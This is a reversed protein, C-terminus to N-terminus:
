ESHRYTAKWDKGGQRQFDALAKFFAGVALEACHMHDPALSQLYEAVMIPTLQWATELEHGEVIQAVANACANTNLCGDLDFSVAQVRNRAIAVYMTVQDGCAGKNCGRGSCHTLPKHRDTRFAMELFVLSHAALEDTENLKM